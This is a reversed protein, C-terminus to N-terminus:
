SGIFALRKLRVHPSSRRYHSFEHRSVQCVAGAAHSYEWNTRLMEWNDPIGTWNKTAVNAPYTYVWFVAQAGLLCLASVVAPWFVSPEHRSMIAVSVIATLQILLLFALRDWGRYAKQVVFYDNRALRIKNPLELLHAM